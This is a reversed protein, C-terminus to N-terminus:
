GRSPSWNVLLGTIRSLFWFGAYLALMTLFSSLSKEVSLSFALVVHFMVVAKAINM